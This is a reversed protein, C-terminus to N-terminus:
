QFNLRKKAAYDHTYMKKIIAKLSNLSLLIYRQTTIITLRKLIEKNYQNLIIIIIFKCNIKKRNYVLLIACSPLLNTEIKVAVM